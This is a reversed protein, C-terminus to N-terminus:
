IYAYLHAVNRLQQTSISGSAGIGKPLSLNEVKSLYNALLQKVKDQQAFDGSIKLQVERGLIQLNELAFLVYYVIDEVAKVDFQNYFVLEGEKRLMLCMQEEFLHLHCLNRDDKTQQSIWNLSHGLQSFSSRENMSELWHVLPLPLLYMQMIDQGEWAQHYYVESSNQRATFALMAHSKRENFLSNPVLSFKSFCFVWHVKRAQTIKLESELLHKEIQEILKQPDKIAEWNFSIINEVQKIEPHAIVLHLGSHRM